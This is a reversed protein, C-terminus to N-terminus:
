GGTPWRGDTCDLQRDGPYFFGFGTCMETPFTLAADTTNDYECDISLTDGPQVVLAQDVPLDLRPPDFTYYDVWEHDYFVTPAGGAPTHTLWVRSGHEHAHGGLRFFRMESQVVCDTRAAGTAGAPVDIDTSTWTFLQALQTDTSPAQVTLNFAAQGDVAATSTNIWHTQVMLQRGADVRYGVGDPIYAVEGGAEGGGAGALYRANLMDDDTCEHTGVDRDRTALYLVAHHSGVSSQFGTAAVVDLDEDFAQDVPLYTCLTVDAGAAIDEIIPSVVQVQGPGPPPPAFGELLPPGADEAACAALGLTLLCTSRALNM